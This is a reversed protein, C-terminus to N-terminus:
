MGWQKLEQISKQLGKCSRNASNLWKQTQDIDKKLAGSAKQEALMAELRPIDRTRLREIVSEGKESPKRKETSCANESM